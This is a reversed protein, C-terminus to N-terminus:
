VLFFAGIVLLFLVNWIKPVAALSKRPPASRVEKWAWLIAFLGVGLFVFWRAQHALCLFFTALSLLASGCVFAFPATEERYLTLRLRHLLLYGFALATAVTFAAGFLIPLLKAM